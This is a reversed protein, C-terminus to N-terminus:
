NYIQSVDEILIDLNAPGGSEKYKYFINYYNM